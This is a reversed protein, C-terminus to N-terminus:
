IKGNQISKLILNLERHVDVLEQKTLLGISELMTTHALSGIVDYEALLMDFEKDRGVTFKEILENVSSDDKQWLKM